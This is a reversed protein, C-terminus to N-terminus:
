KFLVKKGNHLYVGKTPKEVRIGQLTYYVDDTNTSSAISFIGTSTDGEFLIEVSKVGSDIAGQQAAGLLTFWCKTAPLPGESTPYYFRNNSIYLTNKDDATLVTPNYAGTMASFETTITTPEVNNITVGKFVPNEVNAAVKVVYPMGAQIETRPTFNLTLRMTTENYSSSILEEVEAQDGLAEKIQAATADFPLCLTNWKYPSMSLGDITTNVTEGNYQGIVNSNNATTSITLAPTDDPEDPDPGPVPEEITFEGTLTGCYNGQGTVTITATGPQINNAFAVTYDTEEELSNFRSVTFYWDPIIEEGTSTYSGRVSISGTLSQPNITFPYKSTGISQPYQGIVVYNATGVNVNDEYYYSWAVPFDYTLNSQTLEEGTYTKDVFGTVPFFTIDTYEVSPLSTMNGVYDTVRFSIVHTERTPDFMVSFSKSFSTGSTIPSEIRTWEESDEVSYELYGDQGFPSSYFGTAVFPHSVSLDNWTTLDASTVEFSSTPVFNVDGIGIIWSFVVTEGAPITRNKWCWGMASDYSANEVMWNDIYPEYNGVINYSSSNYGYNGFWYDDVATVGTLGSGFLACMQAGNGDMMTLGYTNGETDIRREIPAGDNDGIQVDAYVGFSITMDTSNNNTVTYDIRALEGQAAITAKAFVGDITTGNPNVRNYFDGVQMAATYGYDAFTSGYYVGNFDGYIDISEENEHSYLKTDGIQQYGWPVEYYIAKKPGNKKKILASDGQAYSMVTSFSLLVALWFLFKHKLM